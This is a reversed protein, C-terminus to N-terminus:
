DAAPADITRVTEAVQQVSAPAADRGPQRAPKVAPIPAKRGAPDPLIFGSVPYPKGFSGTPRHEVRVVSWDNRTSVDKVLESSVRGKRGGPPAWNAHEIRITREDVVDAVVAVHGYPMAKTRQFVLVAGSRPRHSTGYRGQAHDWWTWANGSIEFATAQKVYQVCNLSKGQAADAPRASLLLFAAFAVSVIQRFRMM